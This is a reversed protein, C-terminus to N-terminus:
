ASQLSEMDSWELYPEVESSVKRGELRGRGHKGEESSKDSVRCKGLARPKNWM